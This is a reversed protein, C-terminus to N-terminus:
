TSRSSARQLCSLLIGEIKSKWPISIRLARDPFRYWSLCHPTRSSAHSRHYIRRSEHRVKCCRTVLLAQPHLEASCINFRFVKVADQLHTRTLSLGSQKEYYLIAAARWEEMPLSVSAFHQSLTATPTTQTSALVLVRKAAVMTLYIEMSQGEKRRGERYGLLPRMM